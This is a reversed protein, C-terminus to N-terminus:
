ISLYQKIMTKMRTFLHAELDGLKGQFRGLALSRIQFILAVSDITLGNLSSCPIRLTHPFMSLYRLTGTMPVVTCLQAQSHMAVIIAPRTGAQEHGTTDVLNVRWVEGVNM